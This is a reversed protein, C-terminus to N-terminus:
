SLGTPKTRRAFEESASIMLDLGMARFEEWPAALPGMGTALKAIVHTPGDALHDLAEAGIDDTPMDISDDIEVGLTRAHGPTTTSGIVAELM